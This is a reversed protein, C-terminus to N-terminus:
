VHPQVFHRCRCVRALFRRVFHQIAPLRRQGHQREKHRLDVLDQVTSVLHFVFTRWAEVERAAAVM